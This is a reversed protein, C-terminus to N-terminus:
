EVIAIHTPPGAPWVWNGIQACTNVPDAFFVRVPQGSLKAALFQVYLGRCTSPAIEAAWAPMGVHTPLPTQLSCVFHMGYGYNVQLVGHAPGLAVYHVHGDCFGASTAPVPTLMCAGVTCLTALTHMGARTLRRVLTRATHQQM